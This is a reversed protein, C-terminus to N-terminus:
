SHPAWLGLALNNIATTVNQPDSQGVLVATRM